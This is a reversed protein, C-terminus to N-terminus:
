AEAGPDSDPHRPRHKTQWVPGLDTLEAEICEAELRVSVNGSFLLDITGSPADTPTFQIALLSLVVDGHDLPVGKTRAGLVRDFRLASRRRRNRKRGSGIADEWDFRNLIAAFRKQSPVYAMDSVRLVADQVHSSIIQLDADDLALLKLSSM